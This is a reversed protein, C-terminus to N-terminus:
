VPPDVFLEIARQRLVKVVVDNITDGRDMSEFYSKSMDHFERYMPEFEEYRLKKVLRGRHKVFAGFDTDGHEAEFRTLYERFEKVFDNSSSNGASAM